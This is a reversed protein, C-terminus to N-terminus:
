CPVPLSVSFGLQAGEGEREREKELERLRGRENASSREQEAQPTDRQAKRERREAEERERESLKYWAHLPISCSTGRGGGMTLTGIVLSGFLLWKLSTCLSLSCFSFGVRVRNTHLSICVLTGRDSCTPRCVSERWLDGLFWVFPWVTGSAAM